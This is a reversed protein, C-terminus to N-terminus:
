LGKISWGGDVCINQGTIYSALDSGLFLAVNAVDEPKGWRNLLIRNDRDRRLNLKSWSYKTM